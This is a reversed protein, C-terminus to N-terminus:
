YLICLWDIFFYCALFEESGNGEESVGFDTGMGGSNVKRFLYVVKETDEAMISPFAIDM